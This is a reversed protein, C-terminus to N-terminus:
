VALGARRLDSRMRHLSRIDSPTSSMFVLEGAPPAVRYHGSRTLQVPWGANEIARLLAKMEKKM